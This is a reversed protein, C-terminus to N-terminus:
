QVVAAYLIVLQMQGKLNFKDGVMVRNFNTELAPSPPLLLLGNDNLTGDAMLSKVYATVDYTYATNVGFLGDMFLNGYQVASTGNTAPSALDAGILNLQTTNSLRLKPPLPYSVFSGQMPHVILSAQLIKAYNNLKLVDRATPFKIKAMVGASYSSFAMNGTATSPIKKLTSINQLVTGTRDVTINTFHHNKNALTFNMVRSQLFLAPKKYYMRMIVSDKCGYIAPSNTPSSLRLGFLYQLFANNTKIDSENPDKLKNLLENGLNDSLRIFISDGRSPRITIDQSGLLNPDVSFQRTNYINLLNNDYGTITQTVRSVNVHVPKTTDGYYSKDPILVLCLSDFTCTRFSDVYAPPVVEFYTNANVMGFVPDSYGGILSVGKSSTVFSDVYITSVSATFTDVKVIQTFDNDLFQSGFQIDVKKCAFWLISFLLLFFIQIKKPM